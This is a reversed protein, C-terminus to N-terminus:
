YQTVPPLERAPDLWLRVHPHDLMRKMWAAARPNSGTPVRFATLRWVVPAYMIDAGGYAGCLFPGGESLAVEWLDLVQAAEELAAPTAAPPEPLFCLNFSMSERLQSFGSHMAASLWRARARRAPEAPWIAPHAPPPFTEELYELIAMSDPIVLRGDSGEHHLVPVRGTPSVERRRARNRDGPLSIEKEQFPVGKHHAALFARMSWSSINKEGIYLTMTGSQSTM